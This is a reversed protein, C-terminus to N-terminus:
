GSGARRRAEVALVSAAHRVGPIRGVARELRMRRRPDPIFRRSFPIWYTEIAIDAFGARQCLLRLERRTVFDHTAWNREDTWFERRRYVTAWKRALRVARRLNHHPEVLFLRGGPRVLAALAAFLDPRRHFHHLSQLFFVSDISAPAILQAVESAPAGVVEVNRLQEAACRARLERQMDPVLEVAVVSEAHRAIMSTFYGTGAGFELARGYGGRPWRELVLARVPYDHQEAEGYRHTRDYDSAGAGSYIEVNGEQNIRDLARRSPATLLAMKLPHPLVLYLLYNRTGIEISLVKPM